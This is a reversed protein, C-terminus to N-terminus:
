NVVRSFDVDQVIMYMHYAIFHKNRITVNRMHGPMGWVYRYYSGTCGIKEQLVEPIGTM